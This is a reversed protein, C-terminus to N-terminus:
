VHARGIKGMIGVFEGERVTLTINELVKTNGYDKMVNELKILEM